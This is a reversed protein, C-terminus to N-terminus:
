VRSVVLQRNIGLNSLSKLKYLYQLNTTSHILIYTSLYIKIFIHIKTQIQLIKIKPFMNQSIIMFINQFINSSSSPFINQIINLFINLFIDQFANFFIETIDPFIDHIESIDSLIM